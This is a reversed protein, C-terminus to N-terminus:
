SAVRVIFGRDLEWQKVGYLTYPQGVISRTSREGWLYATDSGELVVGIVTPFGNYSGEKLQGLVAGHTYPEYNFRITEPLNLPM